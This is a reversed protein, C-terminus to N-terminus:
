LREPLALRITQPKYHSPLVHAIWPLCLRAEGTLRGRHRLAHAADILMLVARHRAAEDQPLARFEGNSMIAGSVEGTLLMRGVGMDTRAGRVQFDKGPELGAQRLWQLGYLAVLSTPNAFGVAKGRVDAASNLGDDPKGILLANIRPEYMVVPVMARDAQALNWPNGQREM